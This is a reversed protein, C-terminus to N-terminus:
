IKIILTPEPENTLDSNIWELKYNGKEIEEKIITLTLAKGSRIEWGCPDSFRKTDIVVKAKITTKM